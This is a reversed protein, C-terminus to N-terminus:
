TKARIVTYSSRAQIVPENDDIHILSGMNCNILPIIRGANLEGPGEKDKQLPYAKFYQAGDKYFIEGWPVDKFQKGEGCREEKYVAAVTSVLTTLMLWDPKNEAIDWVDVMNKNRNRLKIFIKGNWEFFTFPTIARVAMKLGIVQETVKM